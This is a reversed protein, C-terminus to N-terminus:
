GGNLSREIGILLRSDDPNDKAWEAWNAAGARDRYARVVREATLMRRMEGAGLTDRGLVARVGFRDILRLM